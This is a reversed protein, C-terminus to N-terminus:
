HDKQILRVNLVIKLEKVVVFNVVIIANQNKYYNLVEANWITMIMFIVQIVYVIEM